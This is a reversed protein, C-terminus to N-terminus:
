KKVTYRKYQPEMGSVADLTVAKAAVAAPSMPVRGDASATKVSWGDLEVDDVDFHIGHEAFSCRSICYEAPYIKLDDTIKNIGLAFAIQDPQEGGCIDIIDRADNRDWIRGNDYYNQPTYWIMEMMQQASVCQQFYPQYYPDALAQDFQDQYWGAMADAVEQDSASYFDLDFYFQSDGNFSMANAIVGQDVGDYGKVRLLVGMENNDYAYILTQLNKTEKVDFQSFGELDPTYVARTIGSCIRFDRDVAAITVMFDLDPYCEAISVGEGEVILEEYTAGNARFNSIYYGMYTAVLEDDMALMYDRPGIFTFTYWGIDDRNPTVQVTFDFPNSDLMTFDFKVAPTSYELVQPETTIEGLGNIGFVIATYSTGTKLGSFELTQSGAKLLNSWNLGLDVKQKMQQALKDASLGERLFLSTEYNEVFFTTAESAEIRISAGTVAVSELQAKVSPVVPEVPIEIPQECAAFALPMVLLAVYRFISKM